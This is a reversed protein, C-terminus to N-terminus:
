RDVTGLLCADSIVLALLTSVEMDDVAGAAVAMARCTLVQFGALPEFSLHFAPKWTVMEHDSKCNGPAQVAENSAMLSHGVRSKEVCRGLGDFLKGSILLVNPTIKWPEKPYKVVPPAGEFIMWVDM